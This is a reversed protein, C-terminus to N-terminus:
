KTPSVKDTPTAIPATPVGPSAFPTQATKQPVVPVVPAPKFAGPDGQVELFKHTYTIWSNAVDVPVDELVSEADISFEDGKYVFSVKETHPNYVNVTKEM